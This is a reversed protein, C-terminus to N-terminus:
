YRQLLPVVRFVLGQSVHEEIKLRPYAGGLLMGARHQPSLDLNECNVTCSLQGIFLTDVSQFFDFGPAETSEGAAKLASGLPLVARVLHM